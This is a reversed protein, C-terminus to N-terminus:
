GQKKRYSEFNVVSESLQNIKEVLKERDIQSEGGYHVQNVIPSHGLVACWEKLAMGAKEAEANFGRRM